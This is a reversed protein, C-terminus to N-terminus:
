GGQLGYRLFKVVDTISEKIEKESLRKINEPNVLYDHVSLGVQSLMYDVLGNSFIDNLLYAALNSNLDSRLKGNAKASEIMSFYFDHAKQKANSTIEFLVEEGQYDMVNAIIQGYKPHELSFRTGAHLMEELLTFFDSEVHDFTIYPKLYEMKEQVALSMIYLFLDKKDEFYQYMSGKAIGAKSVISSLSAKSFPRSAFEEIALQIILNRKEEPLNYFTQKPM